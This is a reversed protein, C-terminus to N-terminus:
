VPPQQWAGRGTEIKEAVALVLEEGWPRGIVQVGIPLGERSKGMPVAAGPLGVLNLWQSFRMTDLYCEKEGRRWNGEGHRFAPRSSVPSLLVDVDMQRLVAARLEDREACARGFEDYNMEKEATTLAVFERLMPSLLKEKGTADHRVLDGIVPGFFYWWLELARELGSLKKKEVAFGQERLIKAAREVAEKTESTAEGLAASELVGIRVARLESESVTRVPVPASCADGADPGALVEFLTRVDAITRAMPGVVGLWSFAGGGPPFHGTSPIRGPTPKLACIGCFHAPVRVSGGGDSGVGGMSCGAAIAAAEGGSSGGASRAVDWPNSTKGSLLNDTEYAMLYEPTNTTGLIIAGAAKLRAVLVADASAVYEKRMLSGAAAPWGAVDICSKVTVPVGHLPGLAEGLMVATEAARAQKRAGEADLCVLANLRLQMKAIRNLHADVVKVPSFKRERIGLTIQAITGFCIPDPAM